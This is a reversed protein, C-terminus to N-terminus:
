AQEEEGTVMMERRIKCDYIVGEKTRLIITDGARCWWYEEHRDKLEEALSNREDETCKYQNKISYWKSWKKKPPIAYGGEAYKM